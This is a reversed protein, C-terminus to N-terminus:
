TPSSEEETSPAGASEPIVFVEQLTVINYRLGLGGRYSHYNLNPINRKSDMAMLKQQHAIM